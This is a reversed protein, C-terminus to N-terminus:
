QKPALSAVLKEFRPDGRLDEWVPQLKLLGYSLQNPVREVAEVQEIAASKEGTWALIQALNTAIFAGDISDKSIPLLESARRGERIAEEKRGLGADMLGLFSIAVALDPEDNVVKQLESRGATFAAAAHPADGEWRAVVGEWYAHPLMTGNTAVGERPSNALTRAAAAPTRECLSYNPDDVDPAVGPDEAIVAALALEYPKVDARADIDLAALTIRTGPDGPIVTLCREFIRRADAYRHLQQYAGGVQQLTFFNRPDLELARELNGIAQAWRGERRDIYGTYEYLEANNPLTQHAMELERRAGDYDRFGHYRYDAQALHTEGADPQLRAAAQVAANAKELEAPTHNLGYWYSGTHVRALLCWALLFKPDRDLAEHLIRAAQPMKERAHIPDSTDAYLAQARLYLDYAQLDSTPRSAIATKEQPSLKAQLQSAIAQAIESQIAFVDDLPRDYKEAWLHADTRANILQATVRVKNAVRQVSGELINAVGLQSAIARLDRPAGSKYQMVSTRSIVKLDAIKALDTLIEDQVGDTFYANQKDDSFNEFPLVAISKDPPQSNKELKSHLFQYALLGAAILALVITTTVLKHGTRATISEEPTVDEARKIGEPTIEFAWAFILAVPFGLIIATVFVKMVWAPAEFTPFLISAAQILLWAVIAYAVAVKYVNRRKLEAFINDVKM